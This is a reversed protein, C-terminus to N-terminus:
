RRGRGSEQEGGGREARSEVPRRALHGGGPLARRRRGGRGAGAIPMERVRGEFRIQAGEGGRVGARRGEDLHPAGGAAPPQPRDFDGRRARRRGRRTWSDEQDGVEGGVLDRPAGQREADGAGQERRAVLGHATLQRGAHEVDHRPEVRVPGLRHERRQLGGPAAVHRREVVVVVATEVLIRRFVQVPVAQDGHHADLVRGTRERRRAVIRAQHLTGVRLLALRAAPRDIPFADVVIAVAEEVLVADAADLEIAVERVQIRRVRGAGAPVHDALLFRPRQEVVHQRVAVDGRDDGEAGGVRQDASRQDAAAVALRRRRHIERREGVGGGGRREGDADRAIDRGHRILRAPDEVVGEILRRRPRRRRRRVRRPRRRRDLGGVHLDEAVDRVAIAVDGADPLQRRRPAGGAREM